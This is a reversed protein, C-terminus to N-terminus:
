PSARLQQDPSRRTRLSAMGAIVAALALGCMAVSALVGAAQPRWFVLAGGVALLSLSLLLIARFWFSRFGNGARGPASFHRRSAIEPDLRPAGPSATPEGLPSRTTTAM